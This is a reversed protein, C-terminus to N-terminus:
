ILTHNEVGARGDIVDRSMEFFFRPMDAFKDVVDYVFGGEDYSKKFAETRFLNRMYRHIDEREILITPDKM